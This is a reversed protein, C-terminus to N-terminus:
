LGTDNIKRGVLTEIVDELTVLGVTEQAENVVILLHHRVKIFTALTKELSDDERIYYVKPEMAKGATSSRKIDLSLLDRLNLVGVIHDLDGDIVPLRSHGKEYLEDLVLPGLFEDKEIFAIVNKPQMISQVQKDSFALSSAVLKQQEPSLIDGSAAVLEILEEKSSLAPLHKEEYLSTDRLFHFLTQFRGVFHLLHAEHKEYTTQAFRRLAKGRALVPYFIAIVVAVICGILWGFASFSLIITIVFLLATVIRLLVLVDPLLRERELHKRFSASRKARRELEAHTLTSTAPQVASVFLLGFFVIGLAIVTFTFM